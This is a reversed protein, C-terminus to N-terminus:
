LLKKKTIIITPMQPDPQASCPSLSGVLSSLSNGADFKVLDLVCFGVTREFGFCGSALPSM